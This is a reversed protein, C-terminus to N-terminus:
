IYLETPSLSIFDLYAANLLLPFHGLDPYKEKTESLPGM